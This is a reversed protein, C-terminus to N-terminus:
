NMLPQQEQPEPPKLPSSDLEKNFISQDAVSNNEAISINNMSDNFASNNDIKLFNSNQHKEDNKNFSENMDLDSIILSASM